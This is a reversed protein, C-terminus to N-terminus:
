LQFSDKILRNVVAAEKKLRELEEQRAIDNKEIWGKYTIILKELDHIVERLTQDEQDLEEISM